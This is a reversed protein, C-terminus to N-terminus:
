LQNVVIAPILSTYPIRSQTGKFREANLMITQHVLKNIGDVRVITDLIHHLGYAYLSEIFSFNTDQEFGLNTSDKKLSFRSISSSMLM